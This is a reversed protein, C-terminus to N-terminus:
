VNKQRYVPLLHRLQGYPLLLALAMLMKVAFDGLAWTVWPLGTGAFALSFFLTTDIISAIASSWLPVQWWPRQRWHDFLKVDLLQSVFFAIGSAVAIRVDALWLSLLVGLAFGWYVAWRAQKPGLSRNTLDNVFFALPYTFAGWTLWDNIPFQVAINSLLVVAMMLMPPLFFTLFFM